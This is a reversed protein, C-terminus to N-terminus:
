GSVYLKIHPRKLVAHLLIGSHSPSPRYVFHFSPAMTNQGQIGSRQKNSSELRRGRSIAAFPIAATPDVLLFNTFEIASFPALWVRPHIRQM